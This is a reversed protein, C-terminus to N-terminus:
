NFVVAIPSRVVHKNSVWEIKGESITGKVPAPPTISITVNFSAQRQNASFQLRNTSLIVSANAPHVINPFYVSSVDGVNTVTRSVTENPSSSSLSVMISPYNLQSPKIKKEKACDIKRGNFRQMTIPDYKLACMYGIYDNFNRDFVLGPDMAKPPNLHGAGRAFINSPKWTKMDTFPKGALDVDDASTIIASQIAAPSWTPYKKKILAMVGAVHPAAM